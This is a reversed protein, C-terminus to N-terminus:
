CSAVAGPPFWGLKSLQSLTQNCHVRCTVECLGRIYHNRLQTESCWSGEKRPCCQLWTVRRETEVFHNGIKNFFPKLVGLM